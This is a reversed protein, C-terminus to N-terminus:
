IPLFCSMGSGTSEGSEDPFGVVKLLQKRIERATAGLDVTAFRIEHGQIVVAEDVMAHISPHLLLGSAHASLPDGKGEQSRLYAYIQYVYGSRLSEERYWGRTVISTFKTDIVIRRGSGRHDLVVDTRMSPLIKDIGPTKHEILWGIAKGADIRWGSGSLVVDYFGAVAKEYLHRVWTIERDPLALLKTGTTETPLALDFALHAAAVMQQDDVDHRGFRDASAESRSPKEGTVGMRRLSSALARCRHALDPRGVIKAIADLAARVFRNRPTDVTLDEFRCAIMGRALLQHRETNLLDISGRVRNLVARKSQYGFSLNRMLRREVLRALIEAVLDPIDDPNEEVAIKGRDLQRFLDSAYLMLLWLNRVPIRGIHGSELPTESIITPAAIAM